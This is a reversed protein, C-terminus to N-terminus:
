FALLSVMTEYYCNCEDIYREANTGTGAYGYAISCSVQTLEANLDIEAVAERWAGRFDAQVQIAQNVRAILEDRLVGFDSIQALQSTGPAPCLNAPAAVAVGSTVVTTVRRNLRERNTTEIALREEGFSVISTLRGPEVGQAILYDRASNARRLGLDQNYANNGVADTHGAIDVTAQPFQLLWQAQQDLVAQSEPTLRDRDFEFYITDPVNAVFHGATGPSPAPSTVPAPAPAADQAPALGPNVAMVAMALGAALALNRCQM